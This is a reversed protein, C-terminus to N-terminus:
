NKPPAPPLNHYQNSQSNNAASGTRNENDHPTAQPSNQVSYPHTQAAPSQNYPRAWATSNFISNRNTLDTPRSLNFRSPASTVLSAQTIPNQVQNPTLSGIPAVHYPRVPPPMNRFAFAHAHPNPKIPHPSLTPPPSYWSTLPFRQKLKDFLNNILRFQSQGWEFQRKIADFIQNVQNIDSTQFYVSQNGPYSYAYGSTGAHGEFNSFIFALLIFVWSVCIKKEVNFCRVM